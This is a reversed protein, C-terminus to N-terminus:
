PRSIVPATKVRPRIPLEDIGPFDPDDMARLEEAGVYPCNADVWAILRRLSLPDAKADYHKGSSAMDILRSRLSLYQMPRMTRWIATKADTAPDNPYTESSKLGYVPFAGALGYGPQGRDPIPVPWAAPGILTLYPETFHGQFKGTAPRLTLDFDKRAEGEGLHCKGCNEPQRARRPSFDHRSHCASCSGDVLAAMAAHQRESIASVEDVADANARTAESIQAMSEM